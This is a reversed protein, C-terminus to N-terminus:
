LPPLKHLHDEISNLDIFLRAPEDESISHFMTSDADYDYHQRMYVYTLEINSVIGGWYHYQYLLNPADKDYSCDYDMINLIIPFQTPTYTHSLNPNYVEYRRDHSANEPNKTREARRVNYANLLTQYLTGNKMYKYWRIYGEIGKIFKERTWKSYDIKNLMRKQMEIVRNLLSKAEKIHAAKCKAKNCHTKGHGKHTFTNSCALCGYIDKVEVEDFDNTEEYMFPVPECNEIYGRLMKENAYMSEFWQSDHKTRIHKFLSMVKFEKNCVPCPRKANSVSSTSGASCVSANETDSM